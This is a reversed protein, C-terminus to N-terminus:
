CSITDISNNINGQVVNAVYCVVPNNRVAYIESISRRIERVVNLNNYQYGLLSEFERGDQMVDLLSNSIKIGIPNM